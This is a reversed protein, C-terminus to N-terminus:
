QMEFLVGFNAVDIIERVLGTCNHLAVPLSLKEASQKLLLLMGLAASDLYDVAKMDVIVKRVAPDSLAGEYCARFERHGNFDFRGTLRIVAIEQATTLEARM